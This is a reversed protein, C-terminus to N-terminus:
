NTIIKKVWGVVHLLALNGGDAGNQSGCTLDTGAPDAKLGYGFSMELLLGLKSPHGLGDGASAGYVQVIARSHLTNGPPERSNAPIRCMLVASGKDRHQVISLLNDRKLRLLARHPIMAAMQM